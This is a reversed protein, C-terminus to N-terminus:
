FLDFVYFFYIIPALLFLGIFIYIIGMLKAASDKVETSEYPLFRPYFWTSPRGPNLIEMLKSYGWRGEDDRYIRSRGSLFSKLGYIIVGIAFFSWFLSFIKILDKLVAFNDM